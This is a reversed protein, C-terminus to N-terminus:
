PGPGGGGSGSGGGSYECCAVNQTAICPAPTYACQTPKKFLNGGKVMEYGLIAAAAIGVGAVVKELTGWKTM